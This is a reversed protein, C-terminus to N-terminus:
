IPQPYRWTDVLGNFSDYIKGHSNNLSLYVTRKQVHISKFSSFPPLDLRASRINFSSINSSTIHFTRNNESSSNWICNYSSHEFLDWAQCWSITYVRLNLEQILAVHGGHKVVCTCPETWVEVALIVLAPVIVAGERETETNRQRKEETMEQEREKQVETNIHRKEGAREKERQTRQVVEENTTRM